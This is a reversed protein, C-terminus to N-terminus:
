TEVFTNYETERKFVSAFVYALVWSPSITEPTFADAIKTSYPEGTLSARKLSSGEDAQNSASMYNGTAM